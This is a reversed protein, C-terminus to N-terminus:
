APLYLFVGFVSRNTSACSLCYGAAIALSLDHLAHRRGGDFSKPPWLGSANSAPAPPLSEGVHRPGRNPRCALGKSARTCRAYARQEANSPDDPLPQFEKYTHSHAPVYLGDPQPLVAGCSDRSSVATDIDTAEIAANFTRDWNPALGDSVRSSGLANTTSPM